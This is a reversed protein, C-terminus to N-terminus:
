RGSNSVSIGAGDVATGRYFKLGRFRVVGGATGIIELIRRSGVGDLVCTLPTSSKCIVDGNLGSPVFMTESSACDVGESSCAYTGASTLIKNGNNMRGLATNTVGAGAFTSILNFFENQTSVM